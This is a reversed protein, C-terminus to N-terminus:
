LKSAREREAYRRKYARWWNCSRCGRATCKETEEQWIVPKM